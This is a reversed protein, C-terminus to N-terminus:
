LWHFLYCLNTGSCNACHNWKLELIASTTTFLDNSNVEDTIQEYIEMVLEDFQEKVPGLDTRALAEVKKRISRASVTTIDAQRILDIIHM